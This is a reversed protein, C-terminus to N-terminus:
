PAPAGAAAAQASPYNLRLERELNAARARAVSHDGFFFNAVKNQDGYKKAFRNWLAPGRAVRYGAEHAYRLGVRDAQDEHSRGYGNKWALAGIAALSQVVLRQTDDDITGQAAGITGLAALQVWIQKKYQKRSHEHTAHVLEHGLVIAVEDDDMDALLGSFVYISRNPAAMANWEKNEVVYVRFDAPSLYPPVLAASIRRVREVEPGSERLAGMDAAKGGGAEQYVRGKQRYRAEEEDFASRLDSEFLANGNPKAEVERALLIGDPLREGRAKIEYGLPISQFDRASGAGKFRHGTAARLRQGEVILLDDRRWEAYGELKEERAQAAEAASAALLAAALLVAARSVL